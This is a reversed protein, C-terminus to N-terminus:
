ERCIFNKKFGDTLNLVYTWMWLFFERSIDGMEPNFRMQLSKDSIHFNDSCKGYM